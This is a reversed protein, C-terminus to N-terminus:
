TDTYAHAADALTHTTGDPGRDTIPEADAHPETNANAHAIAHALALAHAFSDHDPDAPRGHLVRERGSRARRLHPRAHCRLHQRGQRRWGWPRRGTWVVM